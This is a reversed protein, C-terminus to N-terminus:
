RTPDYLVKVFHESCYRDVDQVMEQFHADNILHNDMEVLSNLTFTHHEKEVYIDIDIDLEGDIESFRSLFKRETEERSYQSDFLM